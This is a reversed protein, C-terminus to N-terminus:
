PQTTGEIMTHHKRKRATRVKPAPYDRVRPGRVRIVLADWEAEDLQALTDELAAELIGM